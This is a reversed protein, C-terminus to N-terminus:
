AETKRTLFYALLLGLVAWGIATTGLSLAVFHAALEPPATGFYDGPQPAGIVHPLAILAVGAWPWFKQGFAILGLGTGTAIVTGTWWLQRQFLDAAGAGPLEPPLGLAPALQVAIFGAIGWILGRKPTLKIGKTVALWMLGALILGFATFTVMDFAATMVHRMLDPALPPAARLSQAAGDTFHVRAGTEYLEAEQIAPVVFAFQLLAALLGAAVGAFLASTLLHKQM